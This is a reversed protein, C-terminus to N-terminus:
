RGSRDAMWYDYTRYIYWRPYSQVTNRAEDLNTFERFHKGDATRMTQGNMDAEDVHYCVHYLTVPNSITRYIARDREAFVTYREQYGKSDSEQQLANAADIADQKKEWEKRNGNKETVSFAGDCHSGVITYM